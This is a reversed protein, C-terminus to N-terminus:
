TPAGENPADGSLRNMQAVYLRYIVPLLLIPITGYIIPVVGVALNLNDEGFVRSSLTGVTPFGLWLGAMSIAMYYLAVIQGRIQAPTILLLATVGVGSVMGIGITNVCLVAYATWGTPMFMAIVGTPVMILLGAAMIRFPADRIGAKTWRDSLYGWALINAPGIILLATANVIAYYETEWGWVRNFTSALFGQSYAIITMVCVISVFGLYTGWYKAIYGLADGVNNGKLSDDEVTTLRREPEQLFFIWAAVLLGPLGIMFFALQWPALMGLLPVEIGQTTKAWILIGGGLFGAVSAGVVLAMTYFAIPKGREEPPFSDGIMSFTAPSLTAEGAGVSLRAMFMQWFNQAVGSVATALSWFAVGVAVLWTRRVRDVLWGIFLGSTVYVLSFAPGLILGIQEDSLNLDAKIPEILLEIIKRDAYSFVYAVTLAIVLIWGKSAPPYPKTPTGAADTM